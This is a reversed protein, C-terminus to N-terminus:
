QLNGLPFECRCIPYHQNWPLGAITHEYSSILVLRCWLLVAIAEASIFFWKRGSVNCKLMGPFCSFSIETLQWNGQRYLPCRSVFWKNVWPGIWKRWTETIAAPCALERSTCVRRLTRVLVHYRCPSRTIKSIGGCSVDGPLDRLRDIDSTNTIRSLHSAVRTMNLLTRTFPVDRSVICCYRFQM